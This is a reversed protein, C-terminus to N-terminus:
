LTFYRTDAASPELRTPVVSSARSRFTLYVDLKIELAYDVGVIRRDFKM